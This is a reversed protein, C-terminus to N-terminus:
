EIMIKGKAILNLKEWVEYFYIGNAFASVNVSHNQGSFSESLIKEGLTNYITLEKKESSSFIEITLNDSAPNPYIQVNTDSMEIDNVSTLSVFNVLMQRTTTGIHYIQNAINRWEKVQYGIAFKGVSTPSMILDGTVSNVSLAPIFSYNSTYWPVLEYSLSDGDSDVAIPNYIWLPCCNISVEQCYTFVPSSNYGYTPNIVLYAELRLKENGSNSINTIDPVLFSDLCSIVYSGYNSYTHFGGSMSRLIGTGYLACTHNIIRPLTDITGDGWNLLLTPRNILAVSDYHITITAAHYFPNTTSPQSVSIEGSRLDQSFGVTIFLGVSLKTLLIKKDLFM